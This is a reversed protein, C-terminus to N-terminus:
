EIWLRFQVLHLNILLCPHTKVEPSAFVQSTLFEFLCNVYKCRSLCTCTPSLPHVMSYLFQTVKTEFHPAGSHMFHFPLYSKQEWTKLPMMWLDQWSLEFYCCCNFTNRCQQFCCLCSILIKKWAFSVVFLTFTKKSDLLRFQLLFTEGVLSFFIM